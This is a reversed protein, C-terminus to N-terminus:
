AEGGQLLGWMWVGLENGRKQVLAFQFEMVLQIAM